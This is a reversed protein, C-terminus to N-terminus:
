FSGGLAMKLASYPGHYRKPTLGSNRQPRYPTAARKANKMPTSLPMDVDADHVSSSSAAALVHPPDEEELVMALNLNLARGLTRKKGKKGRRTTRTLARVVTMEEDEYADQPFVHPPEYGKFWAHALVERMTYRKKPNTTLLRRVIDRVIAFYDPPLVISLIPRSQAGENSVARTRLGTLDRKRSQIHSDMDMNKAAPEVDAFPISLTLSSINPAHAHAPCVPLESPPHRM